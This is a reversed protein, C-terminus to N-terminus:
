LRTLRDVRGRYGDGSGEGVPGPVDRAGEVDGPEGILVACQLRDAGEGARDSIGSPGSRRSSLGDSQRHVQCLARTAALDEVEDQPREVEVQKPKLDMEVLHM